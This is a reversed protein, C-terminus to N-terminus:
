NTSAGPRKKKLVFTKIDTRGMTTEDMREEVIAYKSGAMYGEFQRRTFHWVHEGPKFHKSNMMHQRSFFIPLSVIVVQDALRDLIDAPSEIHELSDFFTVATINAAEFDDTYPDFWLHKKVLMEVAYPNIDYGLCNGHLDMFTGAGIGIDLVREGTGTYRHVLDLRFQNIKRAQESKDREQLRLFTERNYIKKNQESPM